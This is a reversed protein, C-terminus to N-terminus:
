TTPLSGVCANTSPEAPDAHRHPSPETRPVSATWSTGVSQFQRPVRVQFAYRTCLRFCHGPRVRGARGARQKASARTIPATLLSDLDLLPDYARQRAHLADVVYVVGEITLSTEALNTAFIARRTNRPTPSFM